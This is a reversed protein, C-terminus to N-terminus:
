VLELPKVPAGDPGLIVAAPATEVIKRPKYLKPIGGQAEMKEEIQREYMNIFEHIRYPLRRKVTAPMLTLVTLYVAISDFSPDLVEELFEVVVEVKKHYQSEEKPMMMVYGIMMKALTDISEDFLLVQIKM